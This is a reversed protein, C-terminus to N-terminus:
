AFRGAIASMVSLRYPLPPPIEYGMRVQHSGNRPGAPAATETELGGNSKPAASFEEHLDATSCHGLSVALRNIGCAQRGARIADLAATIEGAGDGGRWGLWADLCTRAASLSETKPPPSFKPASGNPRSASSARSQTSSGGHTRTSPSCRQASTRVPMLPKALRGKSSSGLRGMVSSVDAGHRTYSEIDFAHRKGGPVPAQSAEACYSAGESSRWRGVSAVPVSSSKESPVPGAFMNIQHDHKPPDANGM